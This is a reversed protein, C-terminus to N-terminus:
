FVRIFFSFDFLFSYCDDFITAAAGPPGGGNKMTNIVKLNDFNIVLCNCGAKQVLSLGSRLTFAEVM